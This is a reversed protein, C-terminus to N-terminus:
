QFTLLASFSTLQGSFVMFNFVISNIVLHKILNSATIDEVLTRQTFKWRGELSCWFIVVAAAGRRKRLLQGYVKRRSILHYLLTKLERVHTIM